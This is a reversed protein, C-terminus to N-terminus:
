DPTTGAALSSPASALSAAQCGVASAGAGDRCDLVATWRGVQRPGAAFRMRYLAQGYRQMQIAIRASEADGADALAAFGAFAAAYHGIDYEAQAAAFMQVKEAASPQALAAFPLLAALAAAAIMRRTVAGLRTPTDM